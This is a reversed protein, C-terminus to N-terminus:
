GFPQGNKNQVHQPLNRAQVSAVPYFLFAPLHLLYFNNKSTYFATATLTKFQNESTNSCVNHIMMHFIKM